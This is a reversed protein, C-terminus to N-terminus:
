DQCAWQAAREAIEWPREIPHFQHAGPIIEMSINNHTNAYYEANLRNFTSGSDGWILRTPLQPTPATAVTQPLEKLFAHVSARTDRNQFVPGCVGVVTDHNWVYPNVVARRLGLPSGLLRLQLEPRLLLAGIPRPLRFVSLATKVPLSLQGIPGNSLVLRSVTHQTALMMATPVATGHAVLVTPSAAHRIRAGIDGSFLNLIETEHGLSQVRKAADIWMHGSTPPGALFLFTAM